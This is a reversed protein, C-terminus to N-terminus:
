HTAQFTSPRNKHEGTLKVGKLDSGEARVAPFVPAALAAKIVNNLLYVDNLISIYKLFLTKL